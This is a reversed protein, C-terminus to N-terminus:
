QAVRDMVVFDYDYENKEDALHSERQVERWSGRDYEPFLADGEVDAKVLTLYLRDARDLVQEYLRAGGIIMVEDSGRAAALAQETSHVVQCGPAEYATDRTMVINLRGPLPKGISEYTNRGMIIPKGMTLSKFHRLDGSLRWPLANDRGIVRNQAMAVILAIRM